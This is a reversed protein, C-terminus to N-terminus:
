QDEDPVKKQFYPFFHQLLVLGGWPRGRVKSNKM